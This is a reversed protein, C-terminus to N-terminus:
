KMDEILKEYARSFGNMSFARVEGEKLPAQKAEEQKIEELREEMWGVAINKAKADNSGRQIRMAWNYIYMDNKGFKKLYKSCLKAYERWEGTAEAVNIDSLLVIEDRTEVDWKKMEKVYAKMAKHDFTATGDADKTVLTRPYSMWAASIMRELQAKPYKNMFEDKHCLVYQFAPTLPSANYKLFTNFLLEDSLLEETKGDLMEAAVVKAKESDYANDLVMLYKSLFEPNREGNEYKKNMASLSNEGVADKVAEVFEEASKRAGVLRGIEKGESDFMIFTPFAKVGLRKALEPGEGKEMDIKINVFESNFYDGAVKQPFIDRAVMKCPGCWSTYCDLFVKKGSEKAIEVAEAFTKGELFVVGENDQAKLNSLFTSAVAIVCALLVKKMDTDM